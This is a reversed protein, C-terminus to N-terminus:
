EGKMQRITRAINESVAWLEDAPSFQVYETGAHAASDKSVKPM